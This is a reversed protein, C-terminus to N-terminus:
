PTEEKQTPHPVAGARAFAQLYTRFLDETLEPPAQGIAKQTAHCDFPWGQVATYDAALGALASLPHNPADRTIDALHARWDEPTVRRIRYGERTCADFLLESSASRGHTIHWVGGASNYQDALQVIAPAAYDIPLANILAEGAPAIGSTLYGQVMRGLIDRTNFHGSQSHGSVSGVRYISVPLGRDSAQQVLQEAIWKSLNYGGTPPTGADMRDTEFFRPRGPDAFASLTSLYHLSCGVKASALRLVEVTGLVNSARLNRYPKMHHVDAGCHFIAGSQECIKAYDSVSLGLNPAGLDGSVPHIRSAYEDRWLDYSILASRLKSLGPVRTLCWVHREPDQLLEGLLHAGLFGTGGTLFIHRPLAQDPSGNVPSIEEALQLDARWGDDADPVDGQIFRALGAVTPANFLDLLSVRVGLQDEIASTLRTAMLSHGGLDFFDDDACPPAVALVDAFIAALTQELAGKASRGPKGSFEPIPLATVDIKSNATLPLQKLWILTAPQMYRPLRPGLHDRRFADPARPTGVVYAVLRKDGPKPEFVTVYASTVDPHSLIAQEVEGLEIRYGRIKVQDDIRGLVKIRGDPLQQARDGTKYIRGPGFPNPLFAAATQEPPDHYGRALGVGAIYLEGLCGTPLPQRNEDLVYLQKNAPPTLTPDTPLGHGHVVMSANVTTETPGYANIFIRGASWKEILEASPPEGGVLVMKLDPYDDDPLALLASPTMTAHTIKHDKMLRGLGPGPLLNESPALVLAAGGGLSMVLEPISADFSFSFFNLIKDGPWVDCTRIKDRVLNVIGAHPVLVGKPRGTSGSTYILYALDDPKTQFAPNDQCGQPWDADLNWRPTGEPLSVDSHTLVLTAGSDALMYELRAKPYTPDLPLYAAGSKLVGLWAAVMDPGRNLAIGIITEAKAGRARLAHALQNARANLAGYSEYCTTEGDVHELALANPTKAAHEEFLQQFCSNPDFAQATDNWDVLQRHLVHKPLLDLQSVPKDPDNAIAAVLTAFNEALAAMTEPRFLDTSYEFHGRLGEKTEILDLSVDHHAVTVVRPLLTLAVDPLDFRDQRANGLQFKIQFLPSISPDRTPAYTDVLQEFPVNQHELMRLLQDRFDRLTATFGADPDIHARVPLPNVFLGILPETKARRNATPTGVILDRQGTYRYLLLNFAAFVTAFLSTDQARAIERLTKTVAPSISVSQQAGATTRVPPRAFDPTLQTVPLDAGLAEAWYAGQEKTEPLRTQWEAYDGYQVALVPLRTDRGSLYLASFEAILLDISGADGAIHHLTFVLRALRPRQEFVTLRLPPTSSLDFPANAHQAITEQLESATMSQAAVRVVPVYGQPEITQVPAGDQDAIRTRLVQHRQAIKNLAQQVRDLNLVGHAEITFSLNNLVHGQALQELFWLRKQGSSLPPSESGLSRLDVGTEPDAQDQGLFALIDTKQDRIQTALAPTMATKAGSVRLRDGEAAFRLGLRYADALLREVDTHPM